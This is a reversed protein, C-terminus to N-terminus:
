LIHRIPEKKVQSSTARFVGTHKGQQYYNNYQGEYEIIDITEVIRGIGNGGNNGGFYKRGKLCNNPCCNEVKGGEEHGFINELFETNTISNGFPDICFEDCEMHNQCANNSGDDPVQNGPPETNRGARGM